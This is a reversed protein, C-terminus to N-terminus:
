NKKWSDRLSVTQNFILNEQSSDVSDICFYGKREFQVTKSSTIKQLSSEVKCDTLVKLSDHNIDNKYDGDRGPKPM